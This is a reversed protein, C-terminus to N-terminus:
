TLLLLLISGKVGIIFDVLLLKVLEIFLFLLGILLPSFPNPLPPLLNRFLNVVIM